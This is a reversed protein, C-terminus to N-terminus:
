FGVECEVNERAPTWAPGNNILRVAQGDYEPCLKQLIRINYPRGKEDTSFAVKVKGKKSKCDDSTAKLKNKQLYEQYAKRGIVPSAKQGSKKTNAAKWQDKSIIVQESLLDHNESLTITVPQDTKESVTIEDSKFGIYSFSVTQGKVINRLIFKGSGDTFVEQSNDALVKVGTLANGKADKVVGSVDMSETNDTKASLMDPSAVSKASNRPQTKEEVAPLDNKMEDQHVAASKRRIPKGAPSSQAALKKDTANSESTTDAAINGSDKSRIASDASKTDASKYSGAVPRNSAALQKQGRFHLHFGGLFFLAIFAVVAVASAITSWIFMPHRFRKRKAKKSIQKQLRAVILEHDGKVKEYGEMAEALFPDRMLKEEFEHAQKGQRSGKVYNLINM